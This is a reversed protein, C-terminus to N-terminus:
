DERGVLADKSDQSLFAGGFDPILCRTVFSSNDGDEQVGRYGAPESKKAAIVFAMGLGGFMPNTLLQELKSSVWVSQTTFRKDLPPPFLNLAYYSKGVISLGLARLLRLSDTMAFSRTPVGELSCDKLKIRASNMVLAKANCYAFKMMPFGHDVWRRYLSNKNLFSFILIGNPKVVRILERLYSEREQEPVYELAGLCLLGDFHNSPFVLHQMSGVTFEVGPLGGFRKQAEHIMRESIDIGQYRFGQGICVEAYIGPGCGVDLIQGGELSRLFSSVIAKRRGFFWASSSREQLYADAYGASAADFHTAVRREHGDLSM